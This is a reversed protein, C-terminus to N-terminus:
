QQAVRLVLGTVPATVEMQEVGAAPAGPRRIRGVAAQATEVEHSAIRVAFGASAAETERGRLELDALEAAQRPASDHAALGM